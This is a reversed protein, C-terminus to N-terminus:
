ALYYDLGLILQQSTTLRTKRKERKAFESIACHIEEVVIKLMELSHIAMAFEKIRETFRKFSKTSSLNIDRQWVPMSVFQFLVLGILKAYLEVLVREKRYGSVIDLRMHSKWLKFILEIQWRVSYFLGAQEISLMEKSANTLLITWGMLEFTFASVTRGKKGANKAANRRRRQVIEEPVKFFIVRLPLLMKKGVKLYLEFRTRSESKLLSLLNVKSGDENYLDTTQFLRCLFYAQKDVISKLYNLAFYGLDFINLSNPEAVEIHGQYNQDPTIGDTLTVKKFSGTLFDLVLQIKLAANSACGGSGPFQEAL